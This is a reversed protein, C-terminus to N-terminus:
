GLLGQKGLMKRYLEQERRAESAGFISGGVQSIGSAMDQRGAGAVNAANMMGGTMTNIGGAATNVGFMGTNTLMNLGGLYRTLSDNEYDTEAVGYGINEKNRATTAARRARLKEGRARGVNGSAGFFRESSAIESEEQKGIESINQEHAAKLYPNKQGVRSGLAGFVTNRLAPLAVKLTDLGPKALEMMGQYGMRAADRIADAQAKAAKAASSAGLLGMGAGIIQGWM